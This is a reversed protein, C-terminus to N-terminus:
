LDVALMCLPCVPRFSLWRSLCRPHFSHRCPLACASDGAAMVEQCIICPTEVELASVELSNALQGERLSQITGSVAETQQRVAILAAAAAAGLLNSDDDSAAPGGDGIARMQAAVHQASLLVRQAAPPTVCCCLTFSTM